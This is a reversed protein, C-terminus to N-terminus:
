FVDIGGELHRLGLSVLVMRKGLGDTIHAPALEDSLQFVLRDPIPPSQDLNVLPIWGGLATGVTSM